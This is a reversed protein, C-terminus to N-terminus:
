FFWLSYIELITNQSAHKQSTYARFADTEHKLEISKLEVNSPQNGARIAPAGCLCAFLSNNNYM